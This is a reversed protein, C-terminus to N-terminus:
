ISEVEPPKPKKFANIQSFIAKAFDVGESGLDALYSIREAYFEGRNQLKNTNLDYFHGRIVVGGFVPNDPALDGSFIGTTVAMQDNAEYLRESIYKVYLLKKGVGIELARWSNLFDVRENGSSDISKTYCYTEAKLIEMESIKFLGILMDGGVEFKSGDFNALGYIWIGTPDFNHKASSLSAEQFGLAKSFEAREAKEEYAKEASRCVLEWEDANAFDAGFVRTISAINLTKSTNYNRLGRLTNPNLKSAKLTEDTWPKLGNGCGNKWCYEILQSLDARYLWLPIQEGDRVGTNM